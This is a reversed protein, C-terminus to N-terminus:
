ICLNKPSFDKEALLLFNERGGVSGLNSTQKLSCFIYLYRKSFRKMLSFLNQGGEVLHSPQGPEDVHPLQLHESYRDVM